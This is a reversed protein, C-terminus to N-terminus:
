AIAQGRSEVEARTMTQDNIYKIYDSNGTVPTTIIMDLHPFKELMKTKVEDLRDNATTIFVQMEGNEIVETGDRLFSRSVGKKVIEVNEIMNDFFMTDMLNDLVHQNSITMQVISVQTDGNVWV